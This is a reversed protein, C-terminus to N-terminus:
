GLARPPPPEPAPDRGPPPSAMPWPPLGVEARGALILVIPGSLPADAKKVLKALQPPMVPSPDGRLSAAARCLHCSASGDFTAAIAARVEMRQMHECLMSGWAVVQVVAANGGLLVATLALITFRRRLM